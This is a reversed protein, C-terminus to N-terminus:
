YVFTVRKKMHRMEEDVNEKCSEEGLERRKREIESGRSM